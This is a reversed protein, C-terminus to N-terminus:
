ERFRLRFLADGDFHAVRCRREFGRGACIEAPPDRRDEVLLEAVFRRPLGARRVRGIRRAAAVFCLGSATMDMDAISRKRARDGMRRNKWGLPVVARGFVNQM